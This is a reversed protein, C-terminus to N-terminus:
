DGSGATTALSRAGPFVAPEAAALGAAVFQLLNSAIVGKRGTGSLALALAHCTILALALGVITRRLPM